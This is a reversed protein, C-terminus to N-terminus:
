RRPTKARDSPLRDLSDYYGSPSVLLVDCMIPVPFSDRHRTIWAYKM